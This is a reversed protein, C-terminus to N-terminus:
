RPRIHWEGTPCIPSTCCATSEVWISSRATNPRLNKVVGTVVTGEALHELTVTKRETVEQEVALKRSVVVGRPPPQAQHDQRFTRVPSLRSIESRGRTSRRAPMFAKIGVDV